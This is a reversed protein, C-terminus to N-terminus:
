SLGARLQGDLRAVRLYLRRSRNLLDRMGPALSDCAEGLAHLCAPVDDLPDMEVAAAHEDLEGAAIARRYLLWAVVHTLRTTVRFEEALMSGCPGVEPRRFTAAAFLSRAEFLMSMTECEVRDYVPFEYCAAAQM